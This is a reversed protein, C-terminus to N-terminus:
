YMFNTNSWAFLNNGKPLFQNPLCLLPNRMVCILVSQQKQEKKVSFSNSIQRDKLPHIEVKLCLSCWFIALSAATTLCDGSLEWYVQM